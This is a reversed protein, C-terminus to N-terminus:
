HIRVFLFAASVFDFKAAVIPRHIENTMLKHFEGIKRRELRIPAFVATTEVDAM